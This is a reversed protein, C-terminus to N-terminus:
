TCRQACAVVRPHLPCSPFGFPPSGAVQPSFSDIEAFRSADDFRNWDAGLPALTGDVFSSVREEVWEAVERQLREQVAPDGDPVMHQWQRLADARDRVHAWEVALRRLREFDDAFGSRHEACRAFLLRIAAYKEAFVMEAVLRRWRSDQPERAWLLVAADALFCDWTWTSVDHEFHLGALEAPESDFFELASEVEIRRSPDQSLWADHWLLVAIGGAIANAYEDGFREEGNPLASGAESLTRIRAWTKWFEELEADPLIRAEDLVQRCRIPFGTVLMQDNMAQREATREDQVRELAVNVLVPGHTPDVHAEYNAPDFELDLREAIEILQEGQARRQNWWARVALFFRQTETNTLLRRAVVHRLDYKRHEFAHFAQALKVFIEGETIAGIM